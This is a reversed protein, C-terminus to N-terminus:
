ALAGGALCAESQLVVTAMRLHGVALALTGRDSAVTVRALALLDLLVVHAVQCHGVAHALGVRSGADATPTGVLESQDAGVVNALGFGVVAGLLCGSDCVVLGDAAPTQSRVVEVIFLTM